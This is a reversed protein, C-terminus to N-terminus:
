TVLFGHNFHSANFSQSEASTAIGVLVAAQSAGSDLQGKWFASGAADAPRELVNGYMKNVFFANPVKTGHSSTFESAQMFANAIQGISANSSAWFALGDADPLRNFMAKYLLVIAQNHPTNEISTHVVGVNITKTGVSIASTGAVSASLSLVDQGISSATYKLASLTANIDALNGNVSITHAGMGTVIASGVPVDSLIGL